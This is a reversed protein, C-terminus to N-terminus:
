THLDTRLTYRLNYARSLQQPNGYNTKACLIKVISPVHTRSICACRATETATPGANSPSFKLINATLSIWLQDVVELFIFLIEKM